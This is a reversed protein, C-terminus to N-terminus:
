KLLTKLRYKNWNYPEKFEAQVLLNGNRANWMFLKGLVMGNTYQRYETLRGDDFSALKYDWTTGQQHLDVFEAFLGNILGQKVEMFRLTTGGGVWNFYVNYGDDSKNRWKASLTRGITIEEHAESNTHQFHAVWNEVNVTKGRASVVSNTKYLGTLVTGAPGSNTTVNKYKLFVDAILRQEELTFLNTNSLVNTAAQPCLQGGNLDCIRVLVNSQSAPDLGPIVLRVPQNIQGFLNEALFLLSLSLVIQNLKM